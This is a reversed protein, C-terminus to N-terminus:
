GGGRINVQSRLDRVCCEFPLELYKLRGPFEEVQGAGGTLLARMLQLGQLVITLSLM